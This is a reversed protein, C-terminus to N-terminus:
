CYTFLEKPYTLEIITNRRLFVQFVLNNRFLLIFLKGLLVLAGIHVRAVLWLQLGGSIKRDCHNAFFSTLRANYDQTRTEKYPFLHKAKKSSVHEPDIFIM